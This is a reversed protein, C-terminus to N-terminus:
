QRDEPDQPRPPPPGWQLYRALVANSRTLLIHIPSFALVAVIFILAWPHGSIVVLLSAIVFAPGVALLWRQLYLGFPDRQASYQILVNSFFLVAVGSLFFGWTWGMSTWLFMLAIVAVSAALGTAFLLHYRIRRRNM